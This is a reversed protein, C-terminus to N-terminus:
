FLSRIVDVLVGVALGEAIRRGWKRLEEVPLADFYEALKERVAKRRIDGDLESSIGDWNKDVEDAVQDKVSKRMWLCHMLFASPSSAAKERAEYMSSFEDGRIYTREPGLVGFTDKLWLVVMGASEDWAVKGLEEERNGVRQILRDDSWLISSLPMRGNAISDERSNTATWHVALM